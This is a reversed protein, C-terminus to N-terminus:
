ILILDLRNSGGKLNRFAGIGACAGCGGIYPGRVFCVGATAHKSCYRLCNNTRARCADSGRGTHVAKQRGTMAIYNLVIIKMAM